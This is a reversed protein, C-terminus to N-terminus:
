EVVELEFVTGGVPEGDAFVRMAVAKPCYTPIEDVTSEGWGGSARLFETDAYIEDKTLAGSGGNGTSGSETLSELDFDPDYEDLFETVMSVTKAKTSGFVWSDHYYKVDYSVVYDGFENSRNPKNWEFSAFLYRTNITADVRGGACDASGSVMSGTYVYEFYTDRPEGLPRVIYGGDTYYVEVKQVQMRRIEHSESDVGDVYRFVLDVRYVGDSETINYVEPEDYNYFLGDIKSKVDLWDMSDSLTDYIKEQEGLPSVAALYLVNGTKSAQIYYDLAGAVTTCREMRSEALAALVERKETPMDDALGTEARAGGMLATGLVLAVCVSVLAMGRPYLKFRAIAEIRRAINRAGNSISSTGPVRAYAADAMNLLIGGYERREEGDLRELVRQDCLSEMDNGVRDFVYQMFPNCWQLARLLCWFVNQLADGCRLHLLEHLLVKEDPVEGEPVALVPKIVGCVFASRLGPVAVARCPKLGYKEAAADIAARVEASVPAGHRLLRRLQAYRLTYWAITAAVGATYVVFLWDTVSVPVADPWPIVSWLHTLDFPSTYASGLQMEAASKATELWLGLQPVIGRSIDTPVLVRLALIVWVAYQWRPSLKDRLLWKVLLLVAAVISVNLTQYLFGWINAM